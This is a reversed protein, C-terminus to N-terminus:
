SAQHHKSGTTSHRDCDEIRLNTKYYKKIWNKKEKNLTTILDMNNITHTIHPNPSPLAIKFQYSM